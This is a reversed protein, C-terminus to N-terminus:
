SEQLLALLASEYVALELSEKGHLDDLAARREHMREWRQADLSDPVVFHMVHVPHDTTVRRARHIAQDVLAPTWGPDVMLVTDAADLTIGVGAAELQCLALRLTPERQFAAVLRTREQPSVAGTLRIAMDQWAKTDLQELPELHHSFVLAKRESFWFDDLVARAAQTKAEQLVRTAEQFATLGGRSRPAHSRMARLHSRYRAQQDPTLEVQMVQETLDPLEDKVERLRRAAMWPELRQRLEATRQSGVVKRRLGAATRVPRAVCYRSRFAGLSPFDDPRVLRLIPYLDETSRSLLSGSLFLRRPIAQAVQTVAKTRQAKPDKAWHAEDVVLSAFGHQALHTVHAQLIPFGLVVFDAAPIPTPRTGRLVAVSATSKARIEAEWVGCVGAPCVVLTPGPPNPHAPTPAAGTAWAIAQLTKGLGPEDGLIGCGARQLFRVARAQYAYLPVTLRPFDLPGPDQHLLTARQTQEAVDCGFYTLARQAHYADDKALGGYGFLDEFDLIRHVPVRCLGGDRRGQLAQLRKDLTPSPSAPFVLDQGDLRPQLVPREM